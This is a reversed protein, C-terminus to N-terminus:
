PGLPPADRGLLVFARAFMVATDFKLVTAPETGLPPREGVIEYGVCTVQRYPEPPGDPVIRGPRGDEWRAPVLSHEEIVLTAPGPRHWTLLTIEGGGVTRLGAWGTGDPLLALESSEMAGHDYPGSDWWGVLEDM